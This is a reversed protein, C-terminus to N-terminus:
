DEDESLMTEILPPCHALIVGDAALSRLRTVARSDLYTVGGLDLLVPRSSGLARRCEQEVLDVWDAVLEGEARVTLNKSDDLTTLRLM